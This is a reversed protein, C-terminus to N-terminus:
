DTKYVSLIIEDNETWVETGIITGLSISINFGRGAGTNDVSSCKCSTIFPYPTTNPDLSVINVIPLINNVNFAMSTDQVQFSINQTALNRTVVVSFGLPNHVTTESKLVFLNADNHKYVARYILGGSENMVAKLDVESIPTVSSIHKILGIGHIVGRLRKVISDM